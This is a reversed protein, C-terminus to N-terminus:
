SSLLRHRGGLQKLLRPASLWRQRRGRKRAHRAARLAAGFRRDFRHFWDDRDLERKFDHLDEHELPPSSALLLGVTGADAHRRVLGSCSPCIFTYRSPGRQEMWLHINRIPVDIQGCAPCHSTIAVGDRSPAQEIQGM